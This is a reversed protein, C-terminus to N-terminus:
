TTLGTYDEKLPVYQEAEELSIRKIFDRIPRAQYYSM